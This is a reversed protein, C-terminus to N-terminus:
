GQLEDQGPCHQSTMSPSVQLRLGKTKTRAPQVDIGFLCGHLTVFGPSLCTPGALRVLATLGNSVVEATAGWARLSLTGCCSLSTTRAPDGRANRGRRSSLQRQWRGPGRSTPKLGVAAMGATKEPPETDYPLHICGVNGRGEHDGACLWFGRWSLANWRWHEQRQCQVLPQAKM